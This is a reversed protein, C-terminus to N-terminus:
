RGFVRVANINPRVINVRGFKSISSKLTNSSLSKNTARYTKRRSKVYPTIFRTGKKLPLKTNYDIGTAIATIAYAALGGLAVIVFGGLVIATVPDLAHFEINDLDSNINTNPPNWGSGIIDATKINAAGNSIHKNLNSNLQQFSTTTNSSNKKVVSSAINPPSSIMLWANNDYVPADFAFTQNWSILITLITIMIKRM